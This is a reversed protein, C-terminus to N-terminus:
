ESDSFANIQGGWSLPREEYIIFEINIEIELVAIKGRKVM